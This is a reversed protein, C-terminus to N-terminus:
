AERKEFMTDARWRVVPEGDVLGTLESVVTGVPRDGAATEVVELRCTLTDGPRVPRLWRLEEVGRAGASASESLYNDVLMRMCLSATHWGSAILGDFQSAEAAAEDVHFPQPDFQEAFAVIEERTVTHSGFEVVDGVEIDEFYRV